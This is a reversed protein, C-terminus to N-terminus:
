LVTFKGGLAAFDRLFDPYSKNVAEFDSVTIDGDSVLSAIAATMAIRHDNFSSVSGGHLTEVGNIILGDDTIKVDAGLANLTESTSLLRDSEKLKLRAAGSIVTRGDAVSALLSLIPILDPIDHADIGVARLKSREFSLVGNGRHLVAGMQHIIKVCEADGQATMESLGSVGVPVDSLAGAALFFAANSYDCECKIKRPSIYKQGGSIKYGLDTKVVSIGFRSIVDLTIDVYPKSELVGDIIIESDRSALPLAFFLGTVFQSSINGPIRYIGGSLMGEVTMPFKGKESIIAGHSVLEEYLPSIPRKALYPAGDITVKQTKRKASLIPLAFRFTSGSENVNIKDSAEADYVRISSENIEVAKGLASAASATAYIDKSVTTNEILTEGDSLASAFIIRHLCSKSAIGSIMGSLKSPHFTVTM